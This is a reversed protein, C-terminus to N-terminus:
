KAIDYILQINDDLIRTKNLIFKNNPIGNYLVPGSGLLKPTIFLYVRDILNNMIMNSFLKGGGEVLLQLVGRSGLYDLIQEMNLKENDVAIDVIECSHQKWIELTNKDVSQLNTFIITPGLEANLLNGSVFKGCRDLFCRIPKNDSYINCEPNFEQLRITLRPNDVVATNTAVLIAQSKLRLKHVKLKSKPNSIVEKIGLRGDLGIAMKAIVYPRQTTRHHIYPTLSKIVAPHNVVSVDIGNERLAAIGTGCVRPDPDLIGIIVHKIGSKIIAETCAPQKAKPGKNHCPELTCYLTCNSIDYNTPIMALANTEAHKEGCKAHFGQAIIRNDNNDVVICGVWPNPATTTRGKLSLLHAQHMYDISNFVIVNDNVNAFEVNYSSGTPKGTLLTHNQTYPIISVSFEDTDVSNVTLSVGDIAICDKYKIFNRCNKCSFILVISDPQVIKKALFIIGHIHGTLIHGDIRDRAVALEIHVMDNKSLFKFTTKNITEESLNFKLINNIIEVVTLCCGNVAISDGLKVAPLDEPVELYLTNTNINIIKAIYEIIGIFM